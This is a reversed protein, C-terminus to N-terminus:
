RAPRSTLLASPNTRDFLILLDYEDPLVTSGFAVSALAGINRHEISETLWGSEPSGKVAKRLDVIARPLGLQHFAWEISGPESAPAVNPQLGRGMAIANYRGEHSAFGVVVMEKGHRRALYNGMRQPGKSVHGNHAWLVITAGKPAQSLIWDVNEAMAEDRTLPNGVVGVAQVVIRANQIAWDVDKPDCSKILHERVEKLHAYVEGVRKVLEQLERQAAERDKEGLENGGLIGGLGLTHALRAYSKLGGYADDLTKLYDADSKAVFARVNEAAVRPEQMDFGLFAIKGKGSKNFERMWLIMDLVEQTNWTWFYLGSLLEKPDGKGTLVFENVRYSEPMSAEIAFLTFGMESALFETLRHKMRFFEATGHTAEGLSVIRADGIVAKLPALDAFGHGAEATDFPIANKRLWDLQAPKPALALRASKAVDDFPQGDLEITLADFFATGDGTLIAGFNINVAAPDVKVEITHRAWRTTGRIGRDDKIDEGGVQRFETNDFGVIKGGPGDVRLWLGAYGDKVGETKISAALRVTKGRAAAVPLLGTAVGFGGPGKRTMRLGLKGSRAASADLKVEYGLGGVFWGEPSDPNSGRQEFDLNLPEARVPLCSLVAVTALCLAAKLRNM